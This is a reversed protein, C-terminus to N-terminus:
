NIVCSFNEPLSHCLFKDRPESAERCAVGRQLSVGV